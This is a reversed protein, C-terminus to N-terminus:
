ALSRRPLMAARAQSPDLLLERRQAPFPWRREVRRLGREIWKEGMRGHEGEKGRAFRQDVDASRVLIGLFEVYGQEGGAAGDLPVYNEVVTDAHESDHIARQDDALSQEM